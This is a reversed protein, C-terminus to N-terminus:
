APTPEARVCTEEGIGRGHRKADMALDRVISRVNAARPIQDAHEGGQIAPAASRSESNVLVNWSHM